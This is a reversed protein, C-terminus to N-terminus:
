CRQPGDAQRCLGPRGQGRLQQANSAELASIKTSIQQEVQASLAKQMAVQQSDLSTHLASMQTLTYVEGIVLLALVVFVAIFKTTHSSGDSAHVVVDKGSTDDIPM